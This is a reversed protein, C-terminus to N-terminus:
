KKLKLHLPRTTGIKEHDPVYSTNSVNEDDINKEVYNISGNGFSYDNKDSINSEDDIKDSNNIKNDLCWVGINFCIFFYTRLYYRIEHKDKCFIDYIIIPLSSTALASVKKWM